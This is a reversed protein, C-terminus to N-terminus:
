RLSGRHLATVTVMVLAAAGRCVDHWRPLVTSLATFLCDINLHLWIVFLQILPRQTSNTRSPILIFFFFFLCLITHFKKKKLVTHLVFGALVITCFTVFCCDRLSICFLRYLFLWPPVHPDAVTSVLPILSVSLIEVWLKTNPVNKKEGGFKWVVSLCRLDAWCAITSTHLGSSVWSSCTEQPGHRDAFAPCPATSPTHGRDTTSSTSRTLSSLNVPVEDDCGM